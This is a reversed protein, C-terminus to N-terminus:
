QTSVKGPLSLDNSAFDFVNEVCLLPAHINANVRLAATVADFNFQKANNVSSKPVKVIIENASIQPSYDPSDIYIPMEPWTVPVKPSIGQEIDRVKLGGNCSKDEVLVVWHSHWVAGDNSTDGDNNEDYNPTDDFDPHSTVTLAVIGKDSDFGIDASNLSTPWVYSYVEAGALAGTKTPTQNGLDGRVEAQFTLNNGNYTVKSHVLDFSATVGLSETAVIHEPSHALAYNTVLLTSLLSYKLTFKTTSAEM